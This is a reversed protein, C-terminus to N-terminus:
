LLTKLVFATTLLGTVVLVVKWLIKNPLAEIAKISLEHRSTARQLAEIDKAQLCIRTNRDAVASRAFSCGTRQVDKISDIEKFARSVAENTNVQREMVVEIKGISEILKDTKADQTKRYDTFEKQSETQIDALREIAVVLHTIDNTEM